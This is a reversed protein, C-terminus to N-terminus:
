SCLRNIHLMLYLLEEKDCQWNMNKKFYEEIRLICKYTEPYKIIMMEYMEVNETSLLNNTQSRQLLYRLHIIFRSYTYSNEDISINLTNVVIDTIDKLIKTNKITEEMNSFGGEANILHMAISAAEDKPLSVNLIDKIYGLAEYGIAIEKTYLHEIDYTLPNRIEVKKKSREVAFNLHDALTFLLNSNLECNLNIKAKKVIESAVEFIEESIEDFLGIYKPDVDYYTRRVKSMDTLEYPTPAFGVGKGFVILEKNNGDLGLAVNNNIKKIIKM